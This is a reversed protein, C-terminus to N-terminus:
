TLTGRILKISYICTFGPIDWVTSVSAIMVQITKSNHDTFNIPEQEGTVLAWLASEKSSASTPSSTPYGGTFTGTISVMRVVGLMDFVETKSSDSGPMELPIINAQEDYSVNDCGYLTVGGLVPIVDAM